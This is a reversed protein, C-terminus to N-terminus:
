ESSEGSEGSEGICICCVRNGGVFIRRPRSSGSSSPVTDKSVDPFLTVAWFAEISLVVATIIEYTAPPLLRTAIGCALYSLVHHTRCM